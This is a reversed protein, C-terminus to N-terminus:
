QLWDYHRTLDNSTNNEVSSSNMLVGINRLTIKKILKQLLRYRKCYDTDKM